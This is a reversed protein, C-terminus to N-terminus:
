DRMSNSLGEYCKLRSPLYCCPSCYLLCTIVKYLIHVHSCKTCEAKYFLLMVALTFNKLLNHAIRSASTKVDQEEYGFLILFNQSKKAIECFVFLLSCFVMIYDIEILRILITKGWFLLLKRSVNSYKLDSLIRLARKFIGRGGRGIDYGSQRYDRFHEGHNITHIMILM